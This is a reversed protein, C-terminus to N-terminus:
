RFKSLVYSVAMHHVRCNYPVHYIRLELRLWPKLNLQYRKLVDVALELLRFWIFDIANCKSM